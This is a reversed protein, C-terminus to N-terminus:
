TRAWDRGYTLQQGSEWQAVASPQRGFGPGASDHAGGSSLIIAAVRPGQSISDRSHSMAVYIRPSSYRQSMSAHDDTAASLRRAVGYGTFWTALELQM